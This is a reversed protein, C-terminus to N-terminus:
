TPLKCMDKIKSVFVDVDLSFKEYLAEKLYHCYVKM